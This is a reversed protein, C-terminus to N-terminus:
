KKEPQQLLYKYYQARVLALDWQGVLGTGPKSNSEIVYPQNTDRDICIDIGLYSVADPANDEVLKATQLAVANIEKLKEEACDPVLEQITELAVNLSGGTSFNSAVDSGGIRAYTIVNEWENQGNKSVLCRFDVAKGENNRINICPEVLITPLKKGALSSVYQNFREENFIGREEKTAFHLEGGVKRITMIGRARSGGVPKLIANPIMQLVRQLESYSKVPFTPIAYKSLESKLLLNQLVLKTIGSGDTLMTNEKLWVFHGAYFSQSKPTGFFYETYRPFDTQCKRLAGDEWKLANVYGHERYFPIQDLSVIYAEVGFLYSTQLCALERETPQNIGSATIIGIANKM